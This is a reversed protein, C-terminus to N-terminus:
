KHMDIIFQDIAKEIVDPVQNEEIWSFLQAKYNMDLYNATESFPPYMWPYEVKDSSCIVVSMNKGKLARGIDKRISIVDSLRDFFTKMIGSMNYWYVPTALIINDYSLMREMLPILDDKPNKQDYDFPAIHLQKLDVFDATIKELLKDVIKRTNGNSRASGLLIITKQM